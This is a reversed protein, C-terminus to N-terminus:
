FLTPDLIIESPNSKVLNAYKVYESLCAQAFLTSGSWVGREAASRPTQDAEVSNAVWGAIKYVNIRLLIFKNFFLIHKFTLSTFIYFLYSIRFRDFKDM